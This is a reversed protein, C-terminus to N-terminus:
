SEQWEAPTQRSLQRPHKYVLILMGDRNNIRALILMPRRKANRASMPLGDEIDLVLFDFREIAERFSHDSACFYCEARNCRINKLVVARFAPLVFRVHVHM